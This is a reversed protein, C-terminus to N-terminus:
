VELRRDEAAPTSPTTGPQTSPAPTETPAIPAPATPTEEPPVLRLRSPEDGAATRSASSWEQQQRNVEASAESTSIAEIDAQDPIRLVSGAKLRNINGDFAEPNARFLAIM